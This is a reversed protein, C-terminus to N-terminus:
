LEDRSHEQKTGLEALWKRIIGNVETPNELQTWHATPLTRRVHNPLFDFSHMLKAALEMNAVPDKTALISLVPQTITHNGQDNAFKWSGVNNEETYFHLTNGFGSISFQEVWYDEEEKSFFPIPPIEDVGDWAGLYTDPSTLFNDPPPSAINRLTGRLTRRIDRNLEAIAASTQKNFFLQYALRPHAAVQAEKPVLPGAAPIYPITIGVVATFVDPRERAAEHALQTGWDHGIAIAKSVGAHELICLLDGVLDPMTGSSRVDGPYTSAGFGRLDPAIIHYDDEFELIQYKWSAWLSPWGHLLLLTQEAKPNIDAYHLDIVVHTNHARNIAPCTAVKKPYKRPDFPLDASTLSDSALSIISLAVALVQASFSFM